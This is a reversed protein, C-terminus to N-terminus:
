RGDASVWYPDRVRRGITRAAGVLEGVIRRRRTAGVDRAMWCLAIGIARGQPPVVSVAAAGIGRDAQDVLEAWGRQSSAQLERLLQARTASFSLPRHALREPLVALLEQPTLRMLLAKGIATVFAPLRAGESVVYRVPVPSERVRAIVTETDHLYALYGTAPHRAVLDRLAEDALDALLDGSRHMRGLRQLEFGVEFGENRAGRELFGGRDLLALLRSASSKPLGLERAVDTVRLRPRDPTILALARLGKELSSV